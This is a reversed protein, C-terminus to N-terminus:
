HNVKEKDTQMYRRRSQVGTDSLIQVMRWLNRSGARQRRVQEARAQQKDYNGVGVRSPQKDPNKREDMRQRGM